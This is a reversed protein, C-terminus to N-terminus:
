KWSTALWQEYISKQLDDPSSVRYVKYNLAQQNAIILKFEKLFDNRFILLTVSDGKKLEAIRDNLDSSRARMGNLSVIEDGVDLGVEYAPSGSIVRTVRTRGDTDSTSLGTWPKEASDKLAVTLGCHSLTQEWPLPQTGSVYDNFFQTFDTGSIKEVINKFDLVTYGDGGLPFQRYLTKMVGDLSGTNKTRQRIELDLLMSVAAGRDYYDTETNYAQPTGRAHKVWADFSSEFLSQSKNGPRQRDSQIMSAISELHKDASKLGARVLIVEDFYSTTGEAIWLEGTYNEKTFDYPTIGNPRFQKVNWTHFYEHSVLSLFGRYSDPNNFVFPRTGMITSNVHETGGGSNPACHLLFVYRKYPFDGFLEKTTKIIKTLDRTLTDANWNGNGYISLVHPIKEVEFTFDKQTGIELPCDVFYDYNPAKFTKGKGELGTTVHWNKYPEVNLVVPLARYKEVYMFVAAGDVFGHEDNLGRTRLNFENAYVKYRVTVASVGKSEVRWLSKEVKHWELNKGKADVASFELVGGAFDLVMYRGPRWVPLIFDVQKEEKSIHDITVEVEYIHTSPKSMGLKYHVAPQQALSM